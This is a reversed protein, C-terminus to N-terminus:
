AGVVLLEVQLRYPTQNTLQGLLSAITLELENDPMPIGLQPATWVFTSGLEMVTSISGLSGMGVSLNIQGYPALPRRPYVAKHREVGSATDLFKVEMASPTATILALCANSSDSWVLSAPQAIGALDGVATPAVSGAGVNIIPLTTEGVDLHVISTGQHASTILLDAAGSRALWSLEPMVNGTGPVTPSFACAAIRHCALFPSALLDDLSDPQSASGLAPVGTRVATGALNKGGDLAAFRVLKTGLNHSYYGVGASFRADFPGAPLAAQIQALITGVSNDRPGLVPLVKGTAFLTAFAANSDAFATAGTGSYGCMGGALVVWDPALEAILAATATQRAGVSGTNGIAIIRQQASAGITPDITSPLASVRAVIARVISLNAPGTQSAHSGTFTLSYPDDTSEWRAYAYNAGDLLIESSAALIAESPKEQLAGLQALNLHSSGRHSFSARYNM